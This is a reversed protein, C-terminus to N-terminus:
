ECKLRGLSEQIEKELEAGKAFLEALTCQYDNIKKEFEEPTIDVYEIKM